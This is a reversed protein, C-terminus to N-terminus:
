PPIGVEVAENQFAAEIFGASENMDREPIEV